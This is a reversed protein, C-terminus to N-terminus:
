KSRRFEWMRHSPISGPGGLDSDPSMAFTHRALVYQMYQHCFATVRYIHLYMLSCYTWIVFLTPTMRFVSKLVTQVTISVAYIGASNENYSGRHVSVPTSSSLLYSNFPPIIETRKRLCVPSHLYLEV